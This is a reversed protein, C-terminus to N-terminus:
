LLKIFINGCNTEMNLERLQEEQVSTWRMTAKPGSCARRLKLLDCLAHLPKQQAVIILCHELSDSSSTVSLHGFNGVPNHHADVVKTAIKSDGMLVKAIGDKLLKVTRSTPSSSNIASIDAVHFYQRWDFRYLSNEDCSQMIALKMREFSGKLVQEVSDHASMDPAIGAGSGAERCAEVGSDEGHLWSFSAKVADFGSTVNRQADSQPRPPICAHRSRDGNVVTLLSVRSTSGGSKRAGFGPGFKVKLKVLELAAQADIISDHGRDSTSQQQINWQLYERALYRLKNRYPFGRAHPYLHATDVCTRHIIRLANLDSELSHGVLVTNRGVCSFFYAQVQELRTTEPALLAETIGSYPSRYDIVPTYPKVLTDLIVAGTIGDLLSCRTLELGAATDCMECDVAVVEYTGRMGHDAERYTVDASVATSKSSILQSQLISSTSNLFELSSKLSPVACQEGVAFRRVTNVEKGDEGGRRRKSCPMIPVLGDDGIAEVMTVPASNKPIPYGWSELMESSMVFPALSEASLSDKAVQKLPASTDSTVVPEPLLPPPFTLLRSLLSAPEGSGVNAAKRSARIRMPPSFGADALDGSIDADGRLNFIFCHRIYGKNHIEFLKSLPTDDSFLSRILDRVEFANLDHKTEGRTADRKITVGISGKIGLSRCDVYSRQSSVLGSKVRKYLKKNTKGAGEISAQCLGKPSEEDNM